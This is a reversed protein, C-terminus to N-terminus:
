GARAETVSPHGEAIMTSIEAAAEESPAWRMCEILTELVEIDGLLMRDTFRSRYETTLRWWALASLDDLGHDAATSLVDQLGTLVAMTRRHNWDLKQHGWRYRYTPEALAYFEGAAVMARVFFPPDQFRILEPFDINRTRLLDLSYIFRHFGYDFQYDAYTLLEDREFTYQDYVGEFNTRVWTPHQESWSGGAIAVGHTEAADWLKELTTPEPYLDDPDMFAVYRGRAEAIGRNRAVAVGANAQSVVRFRADYREYDRLIRLSRDTSGDDICLYEVGTLTQRVLSEMCQDLHKQVNYVPLVVSLRIEREAM